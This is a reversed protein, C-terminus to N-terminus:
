HRGGCHNCEISVWEGHHVHGRCDGQGTSHGQAWHRHHDRGSSQCSDAREQVGHGWVSWQQASQHEAGQSEFSGETHSRNGSSLSPEREKTTQAHTGSHISHRGEQLTHMDHQHPPACLSSGWFALLEYRITEDVFKHNQYRLMPPPPGHLPGRKYITSYCLNGAIIISPYMSSFDLVAVNEWIGQKVEMVTAGKYKTTDQRLPSQPDVFPLLYGRTMSERMLQSTFRVLNGRNLVYEMPIGIVRAREVANFLINLAQILALPLEADKLCYVGLVQRGEPGAQWKPTIETFHLDEKAMGAPLYARCVSDLKYEELRFNNLMWLYVDLVVRGRISVKNSKRKGVQASQFYVERVHMHEPGRRSGHSQNNGKPQQMQQQQRQQKGRTSNTTMPRVRTMHTFGEGIGLAEARKQLYEMDFNCINYGTLIDPDYSVIIDRFAMLMSEERDFNLVTAGEISACDKFSLLIPALGSTNTHISIQIVPDIGPDPFVGRRGAAELDFSLVRLPGLESRTECDLLQLKDVHCNVEYRCRSVISQFADAEEGAASSRRNLYPVSCWQCGSLQRDVMFQLIPDLNSNFTPTGGQGAPCQILAPVGHPPLMVLKKPSTELLTRLPAILLPSIVHIKLFLERDKGADFGMISTGVVLEMKVIASGFQHLVRRAHQQQLDQDIATGLAEELAMRLCDKNSQTDIWGSPAPVYLYPHWGHISAYLSGGDAARGFLEVCTGHTKDGRLQLDVLIFEIPQGVGPHPASSPVAHLTELFSMDMCTMTMTSPYDAPDTGAEEEEYLLQEAHLMDEEEEEEGDAHHQSQPDEDDEEGPAVENYALALGSSSATPPASMDSAQTGGRV